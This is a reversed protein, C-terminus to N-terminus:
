PVMHSKMCSAIYSIKYKYSNDVRPERRYISAAIHHWIREHKSELNIILIFLETITDGNRRSTEQVFNSKFEDMTPPLRLFEKLFTERVDVQM